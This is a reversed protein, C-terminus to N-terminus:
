EGTEDGSSTRAMRELVFFRLAGGGALSTSAIVFPVTWAELGAALAVGAFAAGLATEIARITFVTEQRGRVAALSGYPTVAAVSASYAVWGLVSFLEPAVGFLLPGLLPLLAAASLGIVATAGLLGLVARDAKKILLRIAVTSRDRAFSVFLFSSLGGVILLAPAVYIRAAELLGTAALGAFATVLIRLATILAPRLLQQISRWAGYRLVAARDGRTASFPPAWFREEPPLLLVAAAIAIAQGIAIALLFILLTLTGVFEGVGIVCLAGAFGVGDVAAVRWFALGAGILRRMLEQACFIGLAIGFVVAEPVSILRAALVAIGALVSASLVLIVAFQQLASRTENRRRELVVLSDGVFGTIMGSALVIVGYLIAFLGLGELGLTRAVIVQVVFSALAQVAQAAIAGSAQRKM